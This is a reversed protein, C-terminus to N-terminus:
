TEEKKTIEVGTIMFIKGDELEVICDPGDFMVDILKAQIYSLLNRALMMDDANSVVNDVYEEPTVNNEM